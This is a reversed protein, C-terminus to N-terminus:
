GGRSLTWERQLQAALLVDGPGEECALAFAEGWRQVYTRYGESREVPEFFDSWTVSLGEHFDLVHCMEHITNGHLDRESPLLRVTDAVVPRPIAIGGDELDDVLEVVPFCMRDAGIWGEFELMADRVVRSHRASGEIPAEAASHCVRCGGLFVTALAM